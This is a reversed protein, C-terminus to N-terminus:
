KTSQEQETFSPLPPLPMWHTVFNYRATDGSEVFMIGWDNKVIFVGDTQYKNKTSIWVKVRPEPLREEVPIWRQEKMAESYGFESGSEFGMRYDYTNADKYVQVYEIAKNIALNQAAEKFDKM